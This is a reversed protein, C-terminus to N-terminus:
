AGKKRSELLYEAGLAFPNKPCRIVPLGYRVKYIPRSVYFRQDLIRYDCILHEFEDITLATKMAPYKKFINAYPWYNGRGQQHGAYPGYKPPFTVFLYNCTINDILKQKDQVHELVDRLIVLGYFGSKIKTADGKRIVPYIGRDTIELGQAAINREEFNKLLGGEGCGIELCSRFKIKSALYPFLIDAYDYQEKFHKEM